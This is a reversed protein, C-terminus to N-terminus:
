QGTVVVILEILQRHYQRGFIPQTLNKKSRLYFFVQDNTDTWEPNTAGM